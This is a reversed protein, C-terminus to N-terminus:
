QLSVWAQANVQQKVQGLLKDAQGRDSISGIAVRHLNGSKYSYAMWGDGKLKNVYNSANAPSSFAGVIVQYTKGTAMPKNVAVEGSSNSRVPTQKATNQNMEKAPAKKVPKVEVKAESRKTTQATATNITSASEPQFRNERLQKPAGTSNLSSASTYDNTAVQNSSEEQYGNPRKKVNYLPKEPLAFNDDFMEKASARNKSKEVELADENAEMAVANDSSSPNLEEEFALSTSNDTDNTELVANMEVAPETTENSSALDSESSETLPEEEVQNESIVDDEPGYDGNLRPGDSFGISSESATLNTMDATEEIKLSTDNFFIGSVQQQATNVTGPNTYLYAGVLLMAAVPGLLGVWRRYNLDRVVPEATKPEQKQGKKSQHKEIAKNVSRKIELDRDMANARFINLGYSNIDYNIDHAPNFQLKGTESMYLRGIGNLYVKKGARLLKKWSRVSIEVSEMAKEYSVQDVTSIHKALLGDNEQIRTNFAVRKSPPRFMHTASNIEAPYYRTLFAGFGPVVVCENYYLLNSIYHDITHKVMKAGELEM